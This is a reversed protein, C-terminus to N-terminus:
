KKANEKALDAETVGKFSTIYNRIMDNGEHCAYEYIRYTPDRQWPLHATWSGEMVVPDTTTVTYDLTNEGTRTFREVTKLQTSTPIPKSRPGVITMPAKGTYNTTEVVLTNGEWHGRSVGLWQKIAGPLPPRGDVPIIRTEHVIELRIVVYGPAQHIEVGSNYMFPFMSAPMGRTMCRDLVNFDSIDRFVIDSSWSSRMLKSRREGEATLPPLRGNKPDVILSTMRNADGFEAWHGLGIKNTEIEKDYLGGRQAMSKQREAFEADTLYERDGYKPSRQLPTGNLHTLPWNGQIDPDGWPTKPQVYDAAWASSAAVGGLIAAAVVARLIENRRM